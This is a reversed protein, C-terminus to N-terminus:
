RGAPGARRARVDYPPRGGPDARLRGPGLVAIQRRGVRQAKRAFPPGRPRCPHPFRARFYVIYVSGDTVRAPGHVPRRLADTYPGSHQPVRSRPTQGPVRAYAPSPEAGGPATRREVGEVAPVAKGSVGRCRSRACLCRTRLITAMETAM